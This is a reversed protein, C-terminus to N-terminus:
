TTLALANTYWCLANQKKRFAQALDLLSKPTLDLLDAICFGAIGSKCLM